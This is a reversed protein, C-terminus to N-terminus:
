KNVINNVTNITLLYYGLYIIIYLTTSIIIPVTISVENLTSILNSLAKLLMTSHLVGVFLPLLFVYLMQKRITTTIDKKCVGIKRLIEYRGKDDNAETLQKFYIISGTSALFVIGLFATIFTFLGTAERGRKYESYFTSIYLDDINLKNLKESTLQTTEQNKVKYAKLTLSKVQLANTQQEIDKFVKDSVVVYFATQTRNVPSEKLIKEFSLDFDGSSLKLTGETGIYNPSFEESYAPDIVAAQNDALDVTQELELKNAIHNYNEESILTVQYLDVLYHPPLINLDTLDAKVKLIPIEMRVQVPHEKDENIITEVQQDIEENVSQHMYSFPASENAYKTITFFQSFTTGISTLTVASLLAILSFTRINGTIRFLLQSIGILNTGRYYKDKNNQSRKLLYVIVSHFLLYNGIIIGFLLIRFNTFIQENTNMPRWAFSYAITLLLVGIIAAFISPKRAKEGKKDARFLEILRFRYILRYGQISTFLIIVTFVFLTNLIAIWSISFTVNISVGILKLLVTFFLKSLLSGLVIAIALAIAGMILNEYFLMKGITKKKVGLISYLGVEKKRNKTFFSNSYGIFVAVFLILVISSGLFVMKTNVSSDISEQIASNYQLSVFTYYIVISCIMSIFYISYNKFNGRINKKALDFLTM